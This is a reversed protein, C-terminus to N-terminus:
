TNAFSPRTQLHTSMVYSTNSPEGLHNYALREPQCLNRKPYHPPSQLENDINEDSNLHINETSSLESVIETNQEEDIEEGNLEEIDNSTVQQDSNVPLEDQNDSYDSEQDHRSSSDALPTAQQSVPFSDTVEDSVVRCVNYDCSSDTDSTESDVFNKKRRYSSSKSKEKRRDSSLSGKFRLM